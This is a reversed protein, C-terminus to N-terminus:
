NRKGKFNKSRYNDFRKGKRKQSWEFDRWNKSSRNYLHAPNFECLEFRCFDLYDELDNFIKVVEPKM